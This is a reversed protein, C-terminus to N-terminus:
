RAPTSRISMSPTSRCAKARSGIPSAPMSAACGGSRPSCASRAARRPSRDAPWLRQGARASRRAQYRHRDAGRVAHRLRVPQRRRFARAPAVLHHAGTRSEAVDTDGGGNLTASTVLVGHAPKLVLEALPRTPDLWRRHLGVDYERGEVRDVALWDVFDPDAPGGIRALLALWGGVPDARWGLSAIAGEIRARAQGDMWDPGDTLVAELRRGLVVLPRLLQTSRRQRRAPRKSWLRTPNPSSPRWGTAPTRRRPTARSSSAARPPSCRRSRGSRRAKTRPAPAM